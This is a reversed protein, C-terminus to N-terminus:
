KPKRAQISNPLWSGGWRGSQYDKAQQEEDVYEDSIIDLLLDQHEQVKLKWENIKHSFNQIDEETADIGLTPAQDPHVGYKVAM